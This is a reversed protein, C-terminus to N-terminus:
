NDLRERDFNCLFALLLVKRAKISTFENIIEDFDAKETEDM